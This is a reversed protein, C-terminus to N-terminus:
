LMEPETEKKLNNIFDSPTLGTEKKFANQFVRHNAYGCLEALSTIKYKRYVADEYLKRTIYEIRLSNIYHNFNKNKYSKIVESLYKTNTGFNSAMSAITIDSKLYKERKEFKSIKSLLQNVTEEAIINPAKIAKEGDKDMEDKRNESEHKIKTILEQFRQQLVKNRNKWYYWIGGCGLMILIFFVYFYNRLINNKEKDKEKKIATTVKNVSHKEAIRISDRLNTLLENYKKGEITNNKALYAETLIEYFIERGSPSSIKRELELGKQAYHIAKDNNKQDFYFNGATRYLNMENLSSIKRNEAIKLSKLLYTEATRPEAPQIIWLYYLTLNAQISVILDYKKGLSISSKKESIKEAENLGKILYLHVSDPQKKSQDFYGSYNSYFLSSYYHRVDNDKIKGLYKKSAQYAKHSDELFGLDGLSGAKMKYMNSVEQPSSDENILSELDTSVEIVKEANNLTSYTRMLETGISFAVNYKNEKATRYSKELQKITSNVVSTSGIKNQIQHLESKLQEESIKQSKGLTFLHLIILFLIAQYARIRNSNM